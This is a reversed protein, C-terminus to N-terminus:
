AYFVSINKNLVKADLVKPSACKELFEWKKKNDLQLMLIQM